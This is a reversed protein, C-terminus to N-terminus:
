KRPKPLDVMVLQGPASCGMDCCRGPQRNKTIARDADHLVGRELLREVLEVKSGVPYHRWIEQKMAAPSGGGHLSILSYWGGQYGATLDEIFRATQIRKDYPVEPSAQLVDALKAGTEPNHDEDPGPLTVVLGGSVYHAIRHMDYIQTALLLKGVNSFVPDPMFTRSHEDPKGYVSAAVGCAYFGETIKILEVMQERLHSEAGPDFGNAECMLAGAGILLDGFGARAAICTQRHHTAYSYTLHGSHEWEGAYFVRDWPVFVRDFLCVGTSQGYKRSFLAEGHEVKEGPRGAPRAAITLGPADVPVACCVAFEADPDGMNRGPMVLLEHMYPAGTVIAKTGSIVIGRANREVVHVYTDPNAQEHPRRSRDGKADTMAVGLALDQDQVCHLYEVFRATHEGSGRADDIRAAVQGIANLADHTLYRQACGTEQCVLRVAELKNLLDGASTDIHVLRNVRKGSTHQVATMLPALEPRHAYDYTLAIANIGPQLMPDDAVSEVRRGDIFVRPHLRRLSERYDDGTMLPATAAPANM